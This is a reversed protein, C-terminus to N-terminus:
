LVEVWEHRKFMADPNVVVQKEKKIIKYYCEKPSYGMDTHVEYPKSESYKLDKITHPEDPFGSCVARFDFGHLIWGGNELCRGEAIPYVKDGVKLDDNSLTYRIGNHVREVLMKRKKLGWEAGRRFDLARNPNGIFGYVNTAYNIAADEIDQWEGM